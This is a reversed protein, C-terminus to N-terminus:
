PPAARRTARTPRELVGVRRGRASAEILHALRRLRTEERKASTVWFSVTRRYWPAQARFFAYAAANAKLTRAYAGTLGAPREEYSYGARTRDRGAHAALGAPAMLGQQTLRKVRRLNVASWGSGRKRPTIRIAYRDADLSRRIGDIWGFCLVQDVLEPWTISPRGTHRKYFGVWLETAAAHHRELWRRLHAASPFFRIRM